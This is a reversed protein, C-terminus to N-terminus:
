EVWQGASLRRVLTMREAVLPDHTVAILSAGWSDAGAVLVNLVEDATVSDLAGTPEDALILSPRRVLARAIAVRQQEGGSLQSPRNRHKGDLGVGALADMVLNRRSRWPTLGHLLALEVNRYASLHGQLFFRQFIFGVQGARRQALQRENLKTTESGALRYSGSDPKELLGLLSLLTSKGCGSRGLVAVRDGAHVNLSLNRLIRTTTGDPNVFRKTVGKLDVVPENTM